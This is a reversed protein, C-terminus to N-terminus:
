VSYGSAAGTSSASGDDDTCARAPKAALWRHTVRYSGACRYEAPSKTLWCGPPAPSGAYMAPSRSMSPASMTTQCVNPGVCKGRGSSQGTIGTARHPNVSFGVPNKSRM